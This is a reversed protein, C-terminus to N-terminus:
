SQAMFALYSCLKGGIGTGLSSKTEAHHQGFRDLDDKSKSDLLSRYGSTEKIADMMRATLSFHHEVFKNQDGGFSNLADVLLSLKSKTRLTADYTNIFYEFYPSRLLLTGQQPVTKPSL